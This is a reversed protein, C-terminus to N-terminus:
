RLMLWVEAVIQMWNGSVSVVQGAFWRRYNPVLALQGLPAPRGDRREGDLMGELMEAARELADM